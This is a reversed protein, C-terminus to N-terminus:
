EHLISDIHVLAEKHQKLRAFTNQMTTPSSHQPPLQQKFSLRSALVVGVGSGLGCGGRAGVRNCTALTRSPASVGQSEETHDASPGGAAQMWLRSEARGYSDQLALVFARLTHTVWSAVMVEAVLAGSRFERASTMLM